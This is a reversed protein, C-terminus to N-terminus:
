VAFFGCCAQPRPSCLLPTNEHCVIHLLIALTTLLATLAPLLTALASLLTALLTSLLRLGAFLAALTMVFFVLAIALAASGLLDRILFPTGTKSGPSRKPAATTKRLLTPFSLSDNIHHILVRHIMVVLFLLCPAGASGKSLVTARESPCAAPVSALTVCSTVLFM